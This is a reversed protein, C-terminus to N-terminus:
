EGVSGLFEAVGVVEAGREGGGALAEEIARAVPEPDDPGGADAVTGVSDPDFPAGLAGYVPALVSVLEEREAVLVCGSVLAAGSRVRQAVGAFKGGKQISHQGPCFSHEPEGRWARVGVARLSRLVANTTGEYRDHLGEREDAIPVACAFALTTEGTYAVARGGVSREVAAYGRQEAAAKAAPYGDERADRRGFAVQRHPTWVRVAPTGREAAAALMAATIEGDADISDARGRLIRMGVM